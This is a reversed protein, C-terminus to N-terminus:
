KLLVLFLIKEQKTAKERWIKPLQTYVLFYQFFVCKQDLLLSSFVANFNNKPAEPISFYYFFILKKELVTGFYKIITLFKNLAAPKSKMHFTLQVHPIFVSKLHNLWVRLDLPWLWAFSAIKKFGLYTAKFYKLTCLITM